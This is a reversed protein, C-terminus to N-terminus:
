VENEVHGALSQPHIPIVGDILVGATDFSLGFIEETDGERKLNGAMRKDLLELCCTAQILNAQVRWPMEVSCM